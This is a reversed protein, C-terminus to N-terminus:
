EFDIEKLIEGEFSIVKFNKGELLAYSNPNNEKPLSASGPNLIYIDGKKKAVPLHIHGFIFAEKKNIQPLNNEDYLHGHTLYFTIGNLSLVTYDSMMPFNLIMQDVESDCNGRVAYIDQSIENFIEAVQSPNYEKPFPNRPGHYLLDGCLILKYAGSDKFKDVIKKAYYASGHIDSAFMYKM